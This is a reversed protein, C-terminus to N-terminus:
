WGEAVRDCLGAGVLEWASLLSEPGSELLLSEPVLELLLSELVSM